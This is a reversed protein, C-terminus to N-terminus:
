RTPPQNGARIMRRLSTRTTTLDDELTTIQERLAHITSEHRAAAASLTTNTRTLEDIRAVLDSRTRTGL